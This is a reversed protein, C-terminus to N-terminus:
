PYYHYLPDNERAWAERAEARDMLIEIGKVILYGYLFLQLLAM